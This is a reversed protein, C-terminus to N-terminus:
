GSGIRRKGKKTGSQKPLPSEHRSVVRWTGDRSIWVDTVLYNGGWDEGKVTAKQKLLGNVIATRGFLRVTTKEFEYSTLKLDRLAYELYKTRDKVDIARPSAFTFDGSILQRLSDADGVKLSEMLSQELSLLIKRTEDSSPLLSAVEPIEKAPRPAETEPPLARRWADITTGPKQKEQATAIGTPTVALMLTWFCSHIITLRM